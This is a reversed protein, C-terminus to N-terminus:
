PLILHLDGFEHWLYKMKLAARYAERLHERGALAELIMLHSSRPEHLGTLLGNVIRPGRQPSVVLRTWGEGPHALGTEDTVTEIARLATTGVAIIRKGNTHARNVVQATEAPIRYYEEYPPETEELSAVGTHLVLTALEVGKEALQKLTAGTFARGASPMEASGPETSFVNQYYAIPWEKRVYKYRIPYGFQNLLEEPHLQSQIAAIWLRIPKQSGSLIERQDTRYPLLLCVAGGDPLTFIDGPRANLYPGTSRGSPRRLEVVWLDAPLRTSLHLEFSSGDLSNVPLAANLTSSLNLLLVDGSALYEPFERFETHEIKGTGVWSVMLRVQDRSLGRAEAPEGAELDRPLHFDLPDNKVRKREPHPSYPNGSSPVIM